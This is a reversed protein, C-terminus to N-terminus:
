RARWALGAGLQMPGGDIVIRQFGVDLVLGHHLALAAAVAYTRRTGSATEDVSAFRGVGVGPMVAVSLRTDRPLSLSVGLVGAGALSLATAHGDGLFRASGANLRVGLTANVGGASDGGIHEHLLHSQLELGGAVWADCTGCSLSLYAGTLAVSGHAFGVDRAVTVGVDNHIADDIDYRWRGYRISLERPAADDSLRARPPLAGIPTVVLADWAALDGLSQARAARPMGMTLMTGLLLGFGPRISRSCANRM